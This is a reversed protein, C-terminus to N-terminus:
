VLSDNWEPEIVVPRQDGAGLERGFRQRRLFGAVWPNISQAVAIRSQKQRRFMPAAEVPADPRHEGKRRRVRQQTRGFPAGTWRDSKQVFVCAWPNHAEDGVIDPREAAGGAAVGGILHQKIRNYAIM